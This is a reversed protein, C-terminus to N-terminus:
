LCLVDHRASNNKLFNEVSFIKEESMGELANLIVESFWLGKPCTVIHNCSNKSQWLSGKDRAQDLLLRFTGRGTRM